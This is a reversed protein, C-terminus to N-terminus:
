IVFYLVCKFLIMLTVLCPLQQSLFVTPRLVISPQNLTYVRILLKRQISVSVQLLKHNLMHELLLEEKIQLGRDAMIEDKRELLDYFNSDKCIYVDSTRGGYSDSVFTIFGSPSIGILFKLTNHHKYDSWTAAQLYVSKPCRHNSRTTDVELADGM